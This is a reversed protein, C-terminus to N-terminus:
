TARRRSSSRRRSFARRSPQEDAAVRTCSERLGRGGPPPEAALGKWSRVRRLSLALAVVAVNVLGLVHVCRGAGTKDMFLAQGIAHPVPLTMWIFLLAGFAMLTWYAQKKRVEGTVGRM